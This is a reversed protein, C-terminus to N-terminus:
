PDVIVAVVVSLEMCKVRQLKSKPKVYCARRLWGCGKLKGDSSGSRENKCGCQRVGPAARIAVPWSAAIYFTEKTWQCKGFGYLGEILCIMGYKVKRAKNRLRANQELYIAM